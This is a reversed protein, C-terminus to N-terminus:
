TIVVRVSNLLCQALVINKQPDPFMGVSAFVSNGPGGVFVSVPEKPQPRPEQLAIADSVNRRPELQPHKPEYCFPCTKLGQWEKRLESLFFRQNCRDCLALSQRGQAYM